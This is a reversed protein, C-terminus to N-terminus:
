ASRKRRVCFTGVALILVAASSPEPVANANVPIVTFDRISTGDGIGGPVLTANGFTASGEVLDITYLQSPGGGLQISAYGIGTDGSIDFALESGILGTLALDGVTELTGANNAVTVLSGTAADIGFQQTTEGAPREAVLINSDYAIGEIRPEANFNVDGEAYAVDTRDVGNAADPNLLYGGTRTDVVRNNQTDSAITRFLVGDAAQPNFDLGFSAGADALSPDLTGALTASFDLTSINYVNDADTVAWIGGGNARYDLGLISEGAGINSITGSQTVVSPNDTDVIQYSNGIGGVTFLDEAQSQSEFASTLAAVAFLATLTLTRMTHKM